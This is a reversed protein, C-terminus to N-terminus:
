NNKILLNVTEKTKDEIWIIDKESDFDSYIYAIIIKNKVFVM